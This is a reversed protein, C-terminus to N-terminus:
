PWPYTGRCFVLDEELSAGEVAHRSVVDHRRERHLVPAERDIASPDRDVTLAWGDRVRERGCADDVTPPM